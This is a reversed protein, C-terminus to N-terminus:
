QYGKLFSFLVFVAGFYLGGFVLVKSVFLAGVHLFFSGVCVAWCL